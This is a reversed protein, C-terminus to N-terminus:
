EQRSTSALVALSDPGENFLLDLVSLGDVFGYRDSFIQYYPKRCVYCPAKKPHIRERLDRVEDMSAIGGDRAPVSQRGAFRDPSAPPLFTRSDTVCAPLHLRDLLWDILMRNLTYLRPEKSELLAFLGDRYYEFYASSGYASSIAAQHTHVWDVSYDIRVERVPIHSVNRDERSPNSEQGPSGGRRHVVPILLNEKGSATLITCRNRWSQKHYHECAELVVSAPSIDGALSADHVMAAFYDLPPLYATSLLLAM